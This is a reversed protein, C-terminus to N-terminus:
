CVQAIRQKSIFMSAILLLVKVDLSNAIRHQQHRPGVPLTWASLASAFFNSTSLRVFSYPKEEDVDRMQREHLQHLTM